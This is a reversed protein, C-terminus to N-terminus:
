KKKMSADIVFNGKDDSPANSPFTSLITYSLRLFSEFREPGSLKLFAEQQAAKSEEKTTFTVKM